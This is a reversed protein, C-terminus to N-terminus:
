SLLKLNAYELLLDKTGYQSFYVKARANIGSGSLSKVEGRGFHAHEVRAGEVLPAQGRVPEYAGLVEEEDPEDELGEV